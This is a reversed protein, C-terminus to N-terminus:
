ASVSDRRAERFSKVAFAVHTACIVTMVSQVTAALPREVDGGTLLAPLQIVGQLGGVAGLLTIGTAIHMATAKRAEGEAMRGLVVLPLGLVAPLVATPEYGSAVFGGVGLVILLVGTLVTLRPM